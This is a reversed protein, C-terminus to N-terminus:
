WSFDARELILLEIGEEACKAEAIAKAHDPIPTTAAMVYMQTGLRTATDIDKKVQADTFGDGSMKVEGSVLIGDCIGLVDAERDVGDPFALDVGPVLWTQKYRRSLAAIVMLHAVVGQDNAHDVRGDLRYHVTLAQDTHAYDAAMRCVPCHGSGRAVDSSFPVFRKLGCSTCTTELGREAWGIGVLRELAALAAEATGYGLRAASRYVQESRGAFQDAFDRQEATLPQDTAFLSQLKRAIADSRLTTLQRIAEYVHPKGLADTANEDLLGMGIAGKQSITHSRTREALVAEYAAALTPVNLEVWYEDNLIEPIQIAKDRWTAHGDVLKAVCDLKPLADFPEGTLRVLARIATSPKVPVPNPCRLSIKERVIPVDVSEVEGYRRDFVFFNIPTGILFTFPASRMSASRMSTTGSRTHRRIEEDAARELGIQQAFAELGSEGVTTSALVVDPTFQDPRRLASHLIAPWSTWHSIDHPLFAMPISGFRLPRLARLNWFMLCDALADDRTLWIVTPSEMPGQSIYNEGFSVTTRGLLTHDWLQAEGIENDFQTRRVTLLTPDLETEHKTSLDGAATAQWLPSDVAPIVYGNSGDVTNQVLGLVAPPSTFDTIRWSDTTATPTIALDFSEAVTKALQEPADVNVVGDPKVKEVVSRYGSQVSGDPRVEVIPETAGGWRSTAEQVARRFGSRSGEAILYM